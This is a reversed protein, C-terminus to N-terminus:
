KQAEVRFQDILPNGNFGTFIKRCYKGMNELDNKSPFDTKFVLGLDAETSVVARQDVLDALPDLMSDSDFKKLFIPGAGKICSEIVAMSGRYLVWRARSADTALDMQSLNINEPLNSLFPYKKKLDSFNIIPHIRWIFEVDPFAKACNLSYRFLIECESEIGEPIVLCVKDRSIDIQVADYNGISRGILLIEKENWDGNQLLRKRSIDGSALVYDPNNEHSLKRLAGHQNIFIFAHQYGCCLIKEDHKKAVHYVVREWSHGEFTTVIAKIFTLALYNKINVALVLNFRTSSSLCEIAARLITKKKLTSNVTLLLLTIRCFELVQTKIVWLADYFGIQAPVFNHMSGTKEGTSKTAKIHDIFLTRSTIEARQLAAVVEGCYSDYNGKALQSANTLHSIILCDVKKPEAGLPRPKALSKFFFIGLQLLSKLLIPILGLIFIGWPKYLSQYKLSFTPHLRIPHLWAVSIRAIGSSGSKLLEDCTQCVRQFEDETLNASM